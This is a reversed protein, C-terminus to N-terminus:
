RTGPRCSVAELQEPYPEVRFQQHVLCDFLARLSGRPTNVAEETRLLIVCVRFQDHKELCVNKRENFIAITGNAM